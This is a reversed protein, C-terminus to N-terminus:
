LRKAMGTNTFEKTGTLEREVEIFDPIRFAEDEDGLEIELIARGVLGDGGIEYPYVDIEMVHDEWPFAYRTKELRSFAEKRYADYEEKSLVRENEIRSIGSLDEKQTFVYTERGNERILRVRRQVNKGPLAQLYTQVIRRVRCGPLAAIRELDPLRILFKREIEVSM